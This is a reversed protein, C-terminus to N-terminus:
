RLAQAAQKALAQRIIAHASGELKAAELSRGENRLVMGYDNLCSAVLTSQEGCSLATDALAWGYITDANKTQAHCFSLFALYNLKLVVGLNQAQLPVSPLSQMFNFDAGLENEPPNKEEDILKLLTETRKVLLQNSYDGSYIKLARQLLPKAEDYKRQLLYISALGSLDRAVSPHNPGLTEIDIAIMREYFDIRQKNIQDLTTSNSYNNSATGGFKQPSQSKAFIRQEESPKGTPSSSWGESKNEVATTASSATGSDSDPMSIRGSSSAATLNASVQKDWASLGIGRAKTLTSLDDKWLERQFSSSIVRDRDPSNRYLDIYDNLLDDILTTSPLEKQKMVASLSLQYMAEADAFKGQKFTVRGLRHESDAFVLSNPGFSKTAILAAQKYDDAALEYDLEGELVTGLLILTPILKDSDIGHARELLRLAKQYLPLSENTKDETQLVGALSELCVVVEDPSAHTRRADNLASRFCAEAGPLDQLELRREGQAIQLKWDLGSATTGAQCFLM